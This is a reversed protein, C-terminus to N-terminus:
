GGSDMWRDREMLIWVLLRFELDLANLEIYGFGHRDHRDFAEAIAQGCLDHM